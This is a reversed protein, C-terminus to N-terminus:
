EKRWNAPQVRRGVQAAKKTGNRVPVAEFIEQGEVTLAGPTRVPAHLKLVFGPQLAVLDRVTVRMSPLDAAVVVDCDLIRERLNAQPFFRLSSKKKLQGAKSQKILLGAVSAPVALEFKGTMEAIDLEFKALVHKEESPWLEELAHPQLHSGTTPSAESLGWARVAEQALLSALDQMIEEEIESFNQAGEIGIGKGGLLLDIMTFALNAECSLIMTSSASNLPFSAIYAFPPIAAVHDRASLQDLGTMRVRVDTRVYASLSNSLSRAFSENLSTLARTSENSLRAAARFDCPQIFRTDTSPDESRNQFPQQKPADM